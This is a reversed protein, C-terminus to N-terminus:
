NKSNIEKVTQALLEYSHFFAQEDFVLSNVIIEDFDVQAKLNMLQQKVEQKTGVLTVAGMREVVAKEQGILDDPDFKIPGFHPSVKGLKEESYNDWVEQNSAVPPQLTSSNGLVINLFAQTQTTVLKKAEENTDALYANVGIIVYPKALYKSPKFEQRYIKVADILMAPAFHSAFAYPLGLKAALHASDTSSGLIYFPVNLNAAPYAHVKNTDKFYGELEKVDEEFNSDLNKRRLAVATQMDTGPARGLGLDVRNPFMTELTGFQEAVVYPSHNPLMIGGSGVRIKKTKALTEDMLITTAASAMGMANHHEAIWYREYGWDEAKQALQIMVDIAQAYNEKQRLPALNLISYKM